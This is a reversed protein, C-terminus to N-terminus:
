AAPDRTSRLHGTRRGLRAGAPVVLESPARDGVPPSSDPRRAQHVITVLALAVVLGSHPAVRSVSVVGSHLDAVVFASLTAVLAALVPLMGATASPRIASYLLGVGIASNWATSENLLHRTMEAGHHSMGFDLGALQAAALGVQLVGLVGLLVRIVGIRSSPVAGLSLSPVSRGPRQMEAAAFIADTLDPPHSRSSRMLKSVEMAAVYWCCCEQCRALHEDVRASPVTEREGDIRASLATRCVECEVDLNDDM